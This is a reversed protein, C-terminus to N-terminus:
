IVQLDAPVAGRYCPSREPSFVASSRVWVFFPFQGTLNLLAEAFAAPEDRYLSALLESVLCENVKGDAVGDTRSLLGQDKDLVGVDFLM